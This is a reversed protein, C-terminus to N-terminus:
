SFFYHIYIVYCLDTFCWMEYFAKLLRVNIVKVLNLVHWYSIFLCYDTDKVPTIYTGESSADKSSAGWLPHVIVHNSRSIYDYLTINHRPRVSLVLKKVFFLTVRKCSLSPKLHCISSLHKQVNSTPHFSEYFQCTYPNAPKLNHISFWSWATDRLM